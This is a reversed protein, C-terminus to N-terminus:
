EDGKPKVGWHLKRRLIEYFSKGKFKILNVTHDAKRINIVAGPKLTLAVQGDATLIPAHQEREVVVKLKENESFIISRIALTHPCIPTVIIANMTPNIVPGGSALSYATSGTPTSIILGDASYSCVLEENDYLHFQLLRAVGGKDVVLDNLAFLSKSDVGEVEGALVMRKEIHFDGANILDLTAALHNATIETLFGLSGVNIGLIPTQHEGVARATALMTGDGGLSVVIESHKWLEERAFSKGKHGVLSAVEESLFFDVKNKSCWQIIKQVVEPMSEKNVNAIIGLSKM